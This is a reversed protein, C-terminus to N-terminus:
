RLLHSNCSPTDWQRLSIDQHYQPSRQLSDGTENLLFLCNESSPMMSRATGNPRRQTSVSRENKPKCDSKVSMLAIKSCPHSSFGLAEINDIVEAGGSTLLQKEFALTTFRPKVPSEATSNLHQRQSPAAVVLWLGSSWFVLYCDIRILQKGLLVYARTMVTKM